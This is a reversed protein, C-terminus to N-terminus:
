LDINTEINEWDDVTPLFGGGGEPEPVVIPEDIIITYDRSNLFQDTVDFRFHHEDGRTDTVGFDFIMYNSKQPHKGFTRFRGQLTNDESGRGMQYFVGVSGEMPLEKVIFEGELLGSAICKISNIYELGQVQRCIVKWSEVISHAELHIVIDKTEGPRVSPIIVDHESAVWLHDPEYVIPEESPDKTLGMAKLLSSIQGKLFDSIEGTFAKNTHINEEDAIHIAETAMSYVVLDYHGPEPYVYGGEASIYDEHVEEGTYMDYFVVKLMEPTELDTENVVNLNISLVLNVPTSQEFFPRRQCSAGMLLVIALLTIINLFRRM